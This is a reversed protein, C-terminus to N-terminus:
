AGRREEAPVADALRREVLLPQLPPKSAESAFRSRVSSSAFALSFFSRASDIISPQWQQAVPELLLPSV